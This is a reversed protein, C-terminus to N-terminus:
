FVRVAQLYPKGGGDFSGILVKKGNNNAAPNRVYYEIRLNDNQNLHGVWGINSQAAIQTQNVIAQSGLSVALEESGRMLRMAWYLDDKAM